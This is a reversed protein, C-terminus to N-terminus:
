NAAPWLSASILALLAMPVVWATFLAFRGQSVWRRLWRLALLGVGFAVVVGLALAAFSIRHQGDGAALEPTELLVAGAVAPLSIMMSLEFARAPRIGSHLAVAITTASRSLGPAAALGQVVGILLTQKLTPRERKGTRVRATSALAAATLMFGLSVAWPSRTWEEISRRLLLGIAATPLSAVFMIGLDTQLLRRPQGLSQLTPAVQAPLQAVQRRFFLVTALLTGLHLTVSLALNNDSIGFLAQGLALHGDSSIPLFESLGQIAGLLAAQHLPIDM